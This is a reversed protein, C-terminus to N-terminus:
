HPGASVSMCVSSGITARVGLCMFTGFTVSAWTPNKASCDFCVKNDPDALMKKFFKDVTAKDVMADVDSPPASLDACGNSLSNSDDDWRTYGM